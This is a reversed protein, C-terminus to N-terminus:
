LKTFYSRYGSVRSPVVQYSMKEEYFRQQGPHDVGEIVFADFGQRRAEAEIARLVQAYKGSGPRDADVLTLTLCRQAQIPAVVPRRFSIQFNEIRIVGRTSDSRLFKSLDTTDLAQEVAPQLSKIFTPEEFARGQGRVKPRSVERLDGQARFVRAEHINRWDALQFAGLGADVAIKELCRLVEFAEQDEKLHSRFDSVEMTKVPVGDATANRIALKFGYSAYKVLVPDAAPGAIVARVASDDYTQSRRVKRIENAARKAAPGALEDARTFGVLWSIKDFVFDLTQSDWRERSLILNALDLYITRYSEDNRGFDTHLVERIHDLGEYLLDLVAEQHKAEGHTVAVEVLRDIVGNNAWIKQSDYLLASSYSCYVDLARAYEPSKPQLEGLKAEITALARAVARSQQVVNTITNQRAALVVDTSVKMLSTPSHAGPLQGHEVRGTEVMRWEGPKLPRQFGRPSGGDLADVAIIGKWLAEAEIPQGGLLARETEYLEPVKENILWSDAAAQIREVGGRFLSLLAQAADEPIPVGLRLIREVALDVIAAVRTRLLAKDLARLEEQKATSEPAAKAGRHAVWELYASFVERSLAGRDELARSLADPVAGLREKIAAFIRGVEPDNAEVEALNRLRKQFGYGRQLLLERGDGGSVPVPLLSLEAAAAIPRHTPEREATGEFGSPANPQLYAAKAAPRGGEGLETTRAPRVTLESGGLGKPRM